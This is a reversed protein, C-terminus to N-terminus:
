CGSSYRRGRSTLGYAARQLLHEGARHILRVLVAAQRTAALTVFDGGPLTGGIALKARHPSVAVVAALDACASRAGFLLDTGWHAGDETGVPIHQVRVSTRSTRTVVCVKLRPLHQYSSPFYM